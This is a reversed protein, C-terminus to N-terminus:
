LMVLGDGPHRGARLEAVLDKARRRPLEPLLTANARLAARNARTNSVLLLLHDM